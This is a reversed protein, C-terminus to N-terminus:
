WYFMRIKPSCRLIGKAQRDTDNLKHIRNYNIYSRTQSLLLETVAWALDWPRVAAPESAGIVLRENM